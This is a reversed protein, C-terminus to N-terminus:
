ASLPLLDVKCDSCLSFRLRYEASCLPCYSAAGPDRALPPGLIEEETQGSETVIRRWASEALAAHEALETRAAREQGLRHYRERAL